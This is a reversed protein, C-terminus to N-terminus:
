KLLTLRKTQIFTKGSGTSPDEAQLRYFYVDTALNAGNFGVTYMGPQKVDDVLTVVERGLIDYVVLRVRKINSIRYRIDSIVNFPNPYNQYLAVSGPIEQFMNREVFSITGYQNGDIIAGRLVWPQFYVDFFEWYYVMGVSDVVIEVDGGATPGVFVLRTFECWRLNRGFMTTDGRASLYKVSNITQWLTDGPMRAFDYCLTAGHFVSDGEQRLYKQQSYQTEQLITYSKGDPLLTDGLARWQLSPGGYDWVNGKALPYYFVQSFSNIALSLVVVITVLHRVRSRKLLSSRGQFTGEETEIILYM